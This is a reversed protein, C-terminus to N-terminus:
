VKKRPYLTFSIVKAFIIEIFRANNFNKSANSNCVKINRTEQLIQLANRLWTVEPQPEGAYEATFKAPSGEVVLTNTIPKIIQPPKEEPKPPLHEPESEIGTIIESSM